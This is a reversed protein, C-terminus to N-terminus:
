LHGCVMLKLGRKGLGAKRKYRDNFEGRNKNEYPRAFVEFSFISLPDTFLDCFHFCHFCRIFVLVLSHIM